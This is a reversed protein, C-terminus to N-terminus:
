GLLSQSCLIVGGSNWKDLGAGYTKESLSRKEASTSALPPTPYEPSKEATENLLRNSLTRVVKGSKWM